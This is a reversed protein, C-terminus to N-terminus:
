GLVILTIPISVTPIINKAAFTLAGDKQDTVFLDAKEVAAYQADTFNQSLAVMGNHDALLGAISVTQKGTADWGSSTLTFAVAASSDAKRELEEYIGHDAFPLKSYTTKGDGVKSRCIGEATDVFIVEGDMLVIDNQEWNEQTDRKQKLRANYTSVAM